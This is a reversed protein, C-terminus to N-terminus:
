RAEDDPSEQAVNIFAENSNTANVMLGACLTLISKQSSIYADNHPTTPNTVSVTPTCTPNSAGPSNPLDEVLGKKRIYDLCFITQPTLANVKLEDDKEPTKPDTGIIMLFCHYPICTFFGLFEICFNLAFIVGEKPVIAQIQTNAPSKFPKLKRTTVNM